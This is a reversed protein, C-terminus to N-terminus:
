DRGVPELVPTGTQGHVGVGPGSWGPRNDFEKLHLVNGTSVFRGFYLVIFNYEVSKYEISSKSRAHVPQCQM